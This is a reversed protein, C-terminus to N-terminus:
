SPQGDSPIQNPLSTRLPVSTPGEWAMGVILLGSVLGVAPLGQTRLAAAVLGAGGLALLNLVFLAHGGRCRWSSPESRSWYIGVVGVLASVLTLVLVGLELTPVAREEKFSPHPEQV